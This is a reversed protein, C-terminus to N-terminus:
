DPSFSRQVPHVFSGQGDVWLLSYLNFEATGITVLSTLRFYQSTSGIAGQAFGQVKPDEITKQFDTPSPFCGGASARNKDLADQDSWESGTGKLADLVKGPATCVNLKTDPPLASIYPALRLYNDRGFGPLALLETISTLYQNAALYPPNQSLYASDEAGQPQPLQNSDIWDVIMDTWKPDVGTLELLHNFALRAGDTVATAPQQGGQTPTTQGPQTQPNSQGNQPQGNAGAATGAQAGQDVLWNLNFRGAMDELSAELLVGPVVELPGVPQAWPQGPYIDPPKGSAGGSSGNSGAGATSGQTSNSGLGSNSSSSTAGGGQNGSGSGGNSNTSLTQQLGYAALAEAGQGVLVAEDFDLAANERRASMASEYAIAAALITGLAVLLIAVLMAMGRQRQPMAHRVKQRASRISTNM